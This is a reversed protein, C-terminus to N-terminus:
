SSVWLAIALLSLAVGTGVTLGLVCLTGAGHGENTSAAMKQKTPQTKKSQHQRLLMLKAGRTLNRMIARVFPTM